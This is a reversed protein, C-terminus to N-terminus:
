RCCGLGTSMPQGSSCRPEPILRESTRSRIPSSEQFAAQAAPDADHHRPRPCQPSM